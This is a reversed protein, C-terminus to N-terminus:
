NSLLLDTELPGNDCGWVKNQNWFYDEETMVEACEISTYATNDCSYLKCWGAPARDDVPPSFDKDVPGCGILAVLGILTIMLKKM